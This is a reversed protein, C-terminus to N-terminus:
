HLTRDGSHRLYYTQMVERVPDPYSIIDMQGMGEIFFRSAEEPVWEVIADFALEMLRPQHSRTAVIGRNLLLVRWPAARAQDDSQSIAPSVAEVIQNMADVLRAMAQPERLKNALIALANVVPELQAIEAGHRAGWLALPLSLGELDRATDLLGLQKARNGAETFLRIGYGVMESVDSDSMGAESGRNSGAEEHDRLASLLQTLADCLLPPSVGEEDGDDWADLLAETLPELRDTLYGLDAPPIDMM